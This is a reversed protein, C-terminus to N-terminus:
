AIGHGIGGRAAFEALDNLERPDLMVRVDVGNSGSM